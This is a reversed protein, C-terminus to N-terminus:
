PVRLTVSASYCLRPDRNMRASEVLAELSRQVKGRFVLEGNVYISVPKDLDVMRDDLFVTLKEVHKAIINVRNGRSLSAAVRALSQGMRDLYMARAVQPDLEKGFPGKVTFSADPDFVTDAFEEIRVWRSAANSFDFSALRVLRAHPDRRKDRLWEAVKKNLEPLAPNRVTGPVEELWVSYNWKRLIGYTQRASGIIEPPAKESVLLYVPLTILSSLYLRSVEDLPANRVVLAAFRGPHRVATAWALLGGSGTGGLVVADTDVNYTKFAHYLASLVVPIDNFRWARNKHPSDPFLCLWEDRSAITEWNYFHEEGSEGKRHLAIILPWARRPDYTKPVYATYTVRELTEDALFSGKVLGTKERPRQACNRLAAEIQAFGAGSRAVEFLLRQREKPDRTEFAKDILSLKDLVARRKTVEPESLMQPPLQDYLALAEAVRGAAEYHRALQLLLKPDRSGADYAAQLAQYAGETIGLDFLATARNALQDPTLTKPDAKALRALTELAATRTQLRRAEAPDKAKAAARRTFELATEWRRLRCAAEAAGLCAPSYDPDLALARRWRVLALDFEGRAALGVAMLHQAAAAHPGDYYKELIAILLKEAEEYDGRAQLERARQLLPGSRQAILPRLTARAQEHDPNIELVRRLEAIAATTLKHELCYLALKFHGEADDDPLAAAREQYVEIPAKGREIRVIQSRPITVESTGARIRLERPGEEIIKGVLQRGNKLHITDASAALAALLAVFLFARRM